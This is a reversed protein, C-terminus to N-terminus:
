KLATKPRELGWEAIGAMLESEAARGVDMFVSTIAKKVSVADAPPLASDIRDFIKANMGQIGLAFSIADRRAIEFREEDVTPSNLHLEKILLQRLAEFDSATSSKAALRDFVRSQHENFIRVLITGSGRTGKIANRMGHGVEKAFPELGLAPSLYKWNEALQNIYADTLYTPRLSRPNKGFRARYLAEIRSHEKAVHRLYPEPSGYAELSGAIQLYIETLDRQAPKFGKSTAFSQLYESTEAGRVVTFLLAFVLALVAPTKM